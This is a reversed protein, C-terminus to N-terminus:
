PAGESPEGRGPPTMRAGDLLRERAATEEADRKREALTRGHSARNAEAQRAVAARAMAKRRQNLNVIEGM